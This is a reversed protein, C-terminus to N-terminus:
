RSAPRSSSSAWQECKRMGKTAAEVAERFLRTGRPLRLIAEGTRSRFEDRLNWWHKLLIADIERKFMAYTALASVAYCAATALNALRETPGEPKDM